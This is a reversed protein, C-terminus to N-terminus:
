NTRMFSETRGCSYNTEDAHFKGGKIVPSRLPFNYLFFQVMESATKNTDIHWSHEENQKRFVAIQVGAQLSSGLDIRWFRRLRVVELKM